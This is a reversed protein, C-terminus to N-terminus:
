KRIFQVLGVLLCVGGTLLIIMTKTTPAGSILQNLQSNFGNYEEYGWYLLIAGVLILILTTLSKM